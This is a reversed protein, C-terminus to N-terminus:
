KKYEGKKLTILFVGNAGRSGYITASSGKLVSVSKVMVPSINDVSSVPTGDVVYLPENTLSISSPETLYINSGTGRM